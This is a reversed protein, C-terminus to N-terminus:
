PRDLELMLCSASDPCLSEFQRTAAIAAPVGTRAVSEFGLREFYAPATETLLYVARCQRRRARRLLFDCLQRALGRGRYAPDVVLSRLLAYDEAPELGGAAVLRRADFVAYFNRVQAAIDDSPLGGAHLLQELQQLEGPPLRVIADPQM